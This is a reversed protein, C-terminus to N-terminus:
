CTTLKTEDIEGSMEEERVHNQLLDLVDHLEGRFMEIHVM